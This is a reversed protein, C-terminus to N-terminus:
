TPREQWQTGIYPISISIDQRALVTDFELNHALVGRSVWEAASLASTASFM